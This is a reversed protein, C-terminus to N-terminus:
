QRLNEVIDGLLDSAGIIEPVAALWLLRLGKTQRDDNM